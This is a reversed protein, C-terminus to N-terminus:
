ERTLLEILKDEVDTPYFKRANIGWNRRKRSTFKYGESVGFAQAVGDPLGIANYKGGKVGFSLFYGYTLMDIEIGYDFAKTEMSRRLAGTDNEFRGRKLDSLVEAALSHLEQPLEMGYWDTLDTIFQSFEPINTDIASM